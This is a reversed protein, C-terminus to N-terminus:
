SSNLDKIEQPKRAKNYMKFLYGGIIIFILISFWQEERLGAYIFTDDGRLFGELFVLLFYIGIGLLTTKGATPKKRRYYVTLSIALITSYFFAYLQTPHIPVAYKISPNDFIIGWPLSTPNGYASGDLFTGIHGIALAFITSITLIDLWKEMQENEKKSFYIVSITIGIIGGLLSLGKDWIFLTSAFSQVSYDTFYYSLNKLVFLLRSSILGCIFFTISHEYIFNMNLRKQQAIFSFVFVGFLFGIGAFLWLSYIVVPGVQILVPFM